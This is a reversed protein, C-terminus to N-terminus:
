LKRFDNIPIWNQLNARPYESVLWDRVRQHADVMSGDGRIGALRTCHRLYESKNNVDGPGVVLEFLEPIYQENYIALLAPEVGYRKIAPSHRVLKCVLNVNGRRSASGILAIQHRYHLGLLRQELVPRVVSCVRRCTQALLALEGTHSWQCIVSLLYDDLDDLTDM